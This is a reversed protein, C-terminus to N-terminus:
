RVEIVKGNSFTVATTVWRNRWYTWVNDELSPTRHRAPYGWAIRVGDKTMGNLVRGDNIGKRDTAGYANLNVQQPGTIINLYEEISMGAMNGARYEFYVQQGSDRRTITFGGRWKGISVATNVPIIFHGTDPQVYNAYSAHYNTGRTYGHINNQLYVNTYAEYSSPGSTIGACGQLGCFLLLVATLFASLTKIRMIEERPNANLPNTSMMM